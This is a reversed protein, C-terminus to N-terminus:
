GIGGLAIGLMIIIAIIPIFVYKAFNYFKDGFKITAGQNVEELVKKKSVVYYFVIMTILASLPSLVITILNTFNDFTSM